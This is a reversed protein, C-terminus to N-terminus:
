FIQSSNVKYVVHGCEFDPESHLSSPTTTVVDYRLTKLFGTRKVARPFALMYYVTYWVTKRKQLYIYRLIAHCRLVYM